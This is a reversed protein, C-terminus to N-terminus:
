NGRQFGCDGVHNYANVCEFQDFHTFGIVENGAAVVLGRGHTCYHSEEELFRRGVLEEGITEEQRTGARPFTPLAREWGGTTAQFPGTATDQACRHGDFEMFYAYGYWILM